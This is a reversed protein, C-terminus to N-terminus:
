IYNEISKGHVSNINNDIRRSHFIWVLPCYGFQPEIFAKMKIRKKDVNMFPALRVITNLRQCGKKCLNNVHEDFKLNRDITIGRLIEKTNSEIATDDILATSPDSCSSAIHRKDSDGKM